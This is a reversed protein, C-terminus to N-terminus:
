EVSLPPPHPHTPLHVNRSGVQSTQAKFVRAIVIEHLQDERAQEDDVTGQRGKCYKGERGKRRRLIRRNVFSQKRQECGVDVNASCVPGGPVKLSEDVVLLDEVRRGVKDVGPLRAREDAALLWRLTVLSPGLPRPLAVLPVQVM